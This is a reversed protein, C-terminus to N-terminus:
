HDDVEKEEMFRKLAKFIWGLRNGDGIKHSKIGDKSSRNLLLTNGKTKGLDGVM